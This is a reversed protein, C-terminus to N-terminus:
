VSLSTTCRYVYSSASTITGQEFKELFYNPPIFMHQVNYTEENM